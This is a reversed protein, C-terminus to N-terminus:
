DRARGGLVEGCAAYAVAVPRQPTAEAQADRALGEVEGAIGAVASVEDLDARAQARDIHREDRDPGVLRAPEHRGHVHVRFFRNANVEVQLRADADPHVETRELERVFSEVIWDRVQRGGSCAAPTSGPANTTGPKPSVTMRQGPPKAGGSGGDGDSAPAGNGREAGAPRAQRRALALSVPPKAERDVRAAEGSVVDDHM